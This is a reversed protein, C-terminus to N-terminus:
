NTSRQPDRLLAAADVQLAVALRVLTLLTINIQGTEIKQWHRWHMEARQAAAKLTLGAALRRTRVNTRLRASAAQELDDHHSM